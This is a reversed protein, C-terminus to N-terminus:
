KARWVYCLVGHGAWRRSRRKWRLVAGKGKVFVSECSLDGRQLRQESVLSLCACLLSASFVRFCPAAASQQFATSLAVACM